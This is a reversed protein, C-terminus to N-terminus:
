ILPRSQASYIHYMGHLVLVTQMIDAVPASLYAFRRQQQLQEDPMGRVFAIVKEHQTKFADLLEKEGMAAYKSVGQANFSDIDFGAVVNQDAPAQSMAGIFGPTIEASSALHCYLQKASWGGGEDHVQYAWDEPTFGQTTRLGERLVLQLGDILEERTTM